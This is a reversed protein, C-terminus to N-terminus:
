NKANVQEGWRPLPQKLKHEHGTVLHEKYIRSWYRLFHWFKIEYIHGWPLIKSSIRISNLISNKFFLIEGITM